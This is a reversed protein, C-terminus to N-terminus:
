NQVVLLFQDPYYLCHYRYLRPNFTGSAGEVVIGSNHLDYTRHCRSCEARGLSASTIDVPRTIGGTEFCNPCALDFCVPAFGSAGIEPVMPTGVILGAAWLPKGYQDLQTQPYTDTMGQTSQFLYYAGHQRVTCWEGPSNLAPLLTKPAATVPQFRFFAPRQAYPTEIDDTCSALLAVVALVAILVLGASQRLWFAPFHWVASLSCAGGRDTGAAPCVLAAASPLTLPKM